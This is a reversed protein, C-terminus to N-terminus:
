TNKRMIEILEDLQDDPVRQGRVSRFFIPLRKLVEEDSLIDQPIRGSELAALDFLRIYDDTGPKLQLHRAYNELIDRGQPAPFLGREIKSTNGVDIGAQSCFQRLTLGLAIRREKLFGGFTTSM